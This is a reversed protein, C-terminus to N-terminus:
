LPPYIAWIPYRFEAEKGRTLPFNGGREGRGGKARVLATFSV